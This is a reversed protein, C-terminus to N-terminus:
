PGADEDVVLSGSTILVSALLVLAVMIGGVTLTVSAGRMSILWGTLLPGFTQGIRVTSGWLSMIAARQEPHAVRALAAQLTPVALGEATGTCLVAIALLGVWPSGGLLAFGFAFLVASGTLLSRLSWRSAFWGISLAVSTAALGSGALVLGVFAASADFREELHLPLATLFPGFLLVLTGLGIWLPAAVEVRRVHRFVARVESGLSRDCRDGAPGGLLCGALVAMPLAVVYPAFAWRWGGVDTLVGGLPALVVVSATLVATNRGLLVYRRHGEWNDGILVMALNILSAGVLGQAFRAAVLTWIDPAVASLAGFVGFAVLCPVLVRRRGHRDALVGVVPALVIGPLTGAALVVGSLHAPQGLDALLSPIAPAILVTAMMGTVTLLYILLLLARESQHRTTM